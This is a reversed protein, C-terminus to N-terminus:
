CKAFSDSSNTPHCLETPFSVLRRLIIVSIQASNGFKAPYAPISAVISVGRGQKPTKTTLSFILDLLHNRSTPSLFPMRGCFSQKM